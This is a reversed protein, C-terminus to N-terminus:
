ETCIREGKLTESGAIPRDRPELAVRFNGRWNIMPGLLVALVSDLLVWAKYDLCSEATCGWEDRANSGLSEM